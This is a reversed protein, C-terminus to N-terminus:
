AIKHNLFFFLRVSPARLLPHPVVRTCLVFDDVSRYYVEGVRDPLSRTVPVHHGFQKEQNRDKHDAYRAVTEDDVQHGDIAWQQRGDVQEDTVQDADIHDGIQEERPQDEAVADELVIDESIEKAFDSNKKATLM